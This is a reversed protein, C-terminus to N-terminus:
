SDLEKSELNLIIMLISFIFYSHYIAAPIMYVFIGTWIALYLSQGTISIKNLYFLPFVFIFLYGIIGIIGYQYIFQLWENDFYKKNIEKTKTVGNGFLINVIKLNNKNNSNEDTVIINTNIITNTTEVKVYNETAENIKTMSSNITEIQNKSNYSATDENTITNSNANTIIDNKVNNNIINSNENKKGIIEKITDENKVTRSQWSTLPTKGFLQKIRWTLKNPLAFLLTAMFIMYILTILLLKKFNKRNYFFIFILNMIISSIYASRSSAMFLVINYLLFEFYYYINKKFKNIKYMAILTGLAMLLGFTNPNSTAGVPRPNPYNNVLTVYQTPALQRIYLENMNFFNFFQSIALISHIILLISIVKLTVDKNHENQFFYVYNLFIGLYLIPRLVEFYDTISFASNRITNLITIIAIVLTYALFGVTISKVFKNKFLEKFKKRNKIFDYIIIGATIIMMIKAYSISHFNLSEPLLFILITYIILLFKEM